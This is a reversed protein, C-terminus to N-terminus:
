FCFKRKRKQYNLSQKFSIKKRAIDRNNRVVIPNLLFLETLKKMTLTEDIDRMWMLDLVKNKIANFSVQKNVKQQYINKKSLCKETLEKQADEILLTELNTVYITSFFDQRVSEASKGTFNELCLRNKLSGYFTEIGWRLKYLKKFDEWPYEATDLLSTALVEIEGTELELRILRLKVKEPLENKKVAKKAKRSNPTIEIIKEKLKCDKNFLEVSEKFHSTPIRMLYDKGMQAHYAIFEYGPYGRDSIYLIKNDNLLHKNKELYELHMLGLKREDMRYDHLISDFVMNNLVDYLVSAKAIIHQEEEKGHRSIKVEKFDMKVDETNPLIIDSGDIACVIFGKWTKYEQEENYYFEIIDQSLEIYATHRLKKRAQSYASNTVTIMKYGYMEEM